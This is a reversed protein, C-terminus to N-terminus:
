FKFGMTVQFSNRHLTMSQAALSNQVGMRENANYHFAYVDANQMQHQFAADLYFHKHSYGLGVAVRNINGLNVYDTNTMYYYSSGNVYPNLYASKEFPSTVFNYGVRASIENTIRGEVGVRFTHVNRMYKDIEQQLYVDTNYTSWDGANNYDTDGDSYRVAASAYNQWEYEADLAIRTGITTAASVNLKWPTRIRYSNRIDVDQTSGGEYPTSMYVYNRSELDFATPTTISLGIRLPNEEMPRVIIGFKGDYGVGTLSESQQMQYNATAGTNDYLLEDYVLASHTDVNYVGMTAGLYVRENINMSFNFDYEQVSGWQTRHYSYNKANSAVYDAIKVDREGVSEGNEDVADILYTDYALVTSPTTNDRDNDYGLDLWNGELNAALDRFEWSQSMGGNTNIGNLSILGKLNRNKKYNFGVNFFKVGRDNELNLSYVFGAQNFSGRARGPGVSHGNAVPSEGTPEAVLGATFSVDSRRYLGTEAPNTSMASINAGLASMAGGMGVYRADGDLDSGSLMEVKYIDQAHLSGVGLFALAACSYFIKKM